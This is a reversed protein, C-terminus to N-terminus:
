ENLYVCGFVCMGRNTINNFRCTANLRLKTKKNITDSECPSFTM